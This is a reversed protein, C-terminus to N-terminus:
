VNQYVNGYGNTGGAYRGGSINNKMVGLSARINRTMNNPNMFDDMRNDFGAICMDALWEFKKSPSNIDLEEKAAGFLNGALEKVKDVLWNWGASLGSWIGNIINTGVEKFRYALENFKNLITTVLGPIKALLNPLYTILGKALMAILEYAANLLKPANEVLADWIAIIIEPVREILIPLAQILGEALAFIIQLAADILLDINDLLVNYMTLMVNIIQPILEPLATAIGLALQVIIILGMELIQPLLDLFTTIFMQLILFVGNVIEPLNAQIGNILTTVMNMGSTLLQPLINNVIGPIRDVIVPLLREVLEGTGLLVSEVRPLINDAFVSTSEVFNDILLDFDQSDDAIGILMNEWSAKMMGLSGSITTAAEKATTGLQESVIRGTREYIEAVEEATRGSIGMEGQIVHIAEVIDAYSSLDYEVGSLATADKLLRQMETKNGGYGLRLNDLLEFNQKAFNQYANQIMEIPTGMKNANDSMDVIAKNAVKAAQEYVEPSYVASSSSAVVSKQQDIYKKIEKLKEKNAKKLNELEEAQAKKLIELQEQSQNKVLEIEEEYQAKVVEKKADAEEKVVDKQSELEEIQAKRQKEREKQELDALYDALEQEAKLRAENTKASSIKEELSAKKREQERKEIAEREAETQNNLADIQEDIAKLREYKEEDILKLNEKYQEDILAIKQETLEEFAEIEEAHSEKLLEVKKNNAEEVAEYQEELAAVTAGVAIEGSASTDSALSQLLSASFSTVTEMYDNASLGATEFAMSAYDQVTGASDKFLTEVGGVLQEYDAYATVASKGLALIGGAAATTGKAFVKLGATGM